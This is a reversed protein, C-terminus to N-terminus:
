FRRKKEPATPEPYRRKRWNEQPSGKQLRPCSIRKHGPQHCNYCITEGRRPGRELKENDNAGFVKKAMRQVTRRLGEIESQSNTRDIEKKAEEAPKKTVHQVVEEKENDKVDPSMKWPEEELILEVPTKTRTPVDKRRMRLACQKRKALEVVKEDMEVAQEIVAEKMDPSLGNVFWAVVTALDMRENALHCEKKVHYWFDEVDQDSKMKLNALRVITSAETEKKTFRIGIERKLYALDEQKDLPLTDFWTKIKGELSDILTALQSTHDWNFRKGSRELHRIWQSGSERVSM